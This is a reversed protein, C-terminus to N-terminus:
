ETRGLYRHAADLTYTPLYGSKMNHIHVHQGRRIVQTAIGIRAGYKVIDAGAAIDHRAVKHGLAVSTDLGLPAGDVILKEGAVLDACAVCVNDRASLAILRPDDATAM